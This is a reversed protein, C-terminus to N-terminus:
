QSQSDPTADGERQADDESQAPSLPPTEIDGEDSAVPVPDTAPSPPEEESASSDAANKQDAIAPISKVAELKEAFKVGKPDDKKKKKKDAKDSTHQRPKKSTSAKKKKKKEVKEEEDTDSMPATKRKASSTSKSAKIKEEKQREKAEEYSRHQAVEDLERQAEQPSLRTHMVPLFEPAGKFNRLENELANICTEFEHLIHTELPAKVAEHVDEAKNIHKLCYASLRTVDDAVTKKLISFFRQVFPQRAKDAKNDLWNKLPLLLQRLKIVYAKRDGVGPKVWKNNVLHQLQVLYDALYSIKLADLDDLFTDMVVNPQQPLFITALKVALAKKFGQMAEAKHIYDQRYGGLLSM